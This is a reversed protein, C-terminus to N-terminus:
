LQFREDAELNARVAEARGPHEFPSQAVSSEFEVQPDHLLHRPTHVVKM